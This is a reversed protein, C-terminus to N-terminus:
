TPWTTPVNSWWHTCADCSRPQIGCRAHRGLRRDDTGSRAAEVARDMDPVSGDPASGVLEGTAPNHVRLVYTGAPEVWEGGIYLRDYTNM